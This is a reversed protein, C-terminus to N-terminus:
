VCNMQSFRFVMFEEGSVVEKQLLIMKQHGGTLCYQRKSSHAGMTFNLVADKQM